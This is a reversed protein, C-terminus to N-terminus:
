GARPLPGIRHLVEPEAGDLHASSAWPSTVLPVDLERAVRAFLRQSAVNSPTVTAELHHPGVEDVLWRLMRAGLGRGRGAPGVAVQWVFLMGPDRPPTLGVVFGALGTPGEAVVSTDAFTRAALEYAYPSNVDLGGGDRVAAYLAPGDGERLHRPAFTTARVPAEPAANTV